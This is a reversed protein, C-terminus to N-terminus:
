QWCLLHGVIMPESNMPWVVAAMPRISQLEENTPQRMALSWAGAMTTLPPAAKEPPQRLMTSVTISM